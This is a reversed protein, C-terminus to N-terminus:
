RTSWKVMMGTRRRARSNPEGAIETCTKIATFTGLVDFLMFTKNNLPLHGRGRAM